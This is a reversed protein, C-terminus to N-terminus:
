PTFSLDRVEELKFLMTRRVVSHASFYGQCNGNFSSLPNQKNSQGFHLSYLYDYTKKDTSLVEVLITDNEFLLKDKDDPDNEEMKKRSMINVVHNMDQGDYGVDKFVGWKYPRSNRYMRYCYYNTVEPDDMFHIHLVVNETMAGKEWKFYLSDLSISKQMTSTCYYQQDEADITITYSVGAKGIYDTAPRYIGEATHALTVVSGDSGSISVRADTYPSTRVTDEMDLTCGITVVTGTDTVSGNVVPLPAIHHYDFDIDQRCSTLLFLVFVFLLINRM